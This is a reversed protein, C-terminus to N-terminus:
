RPRPIPLTPSPAHTTTGTHVVLFRFPRHTQGEVPPFPLPTEVEGTWISPGLDRREGCVDGPGVVGSGPSGLPSRQVRSRGKMRLLPRQPDEALFNESLRRLFPPLSTENHCSRAGRVRVLPPLPDFVCSPGQPFPLLVVPTVFVCRCGM